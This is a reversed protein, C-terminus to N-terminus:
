VSGKFDKDTCCETDESQHNHWKVPEGIVKITVQIEVPSLWLVLVWIQILIEDCNQLYCLGSM